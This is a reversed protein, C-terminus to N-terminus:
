MTISATELNRTCSWAPSGTAPYWGHVNCQQAKGTGVVDLRGLADAFEEAELQYQAVGAIHEDRAGAADPIRVLVESPSPVFAAPM